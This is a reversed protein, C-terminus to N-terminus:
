TRRLRAGLARPIEWVHAVDLVACSYDLAAMPGARIGQAAAMRRFRAYHRTAKQLATRQVPPLADAQRGRRAYAPVPQAQLAAVTGEPATLGVVNCLTELMQLVPLAVHAQGALEVLRPWDIAGMRVLVAADAVAVPGALPAGVCTRLLQSTADPSRGAAQDLPLMQAHHWADADVAGFPAEPLFYWALEATKGASGTLMYAQQWRREGHRPQPVRWGLLSLRDLAVDVSEPSVLLALAPIPRAGIDPYASAALAAAGVVLVRVEAATLADLVQGLAQLRLQNAYWTRRYIGAIRPLWPHEIGLPEVNRYLLPLLTFQAYTVEDFDCQATWAAFADAAATGPLLAARVLARDAPTLSEM